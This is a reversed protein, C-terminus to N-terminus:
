FFRLNSAVNRHGLTEMEFEMNRFVYREIWKKKKSKSINVSAFMLVGGWFVEAHMNNDQTVHKNISKQLFYQM